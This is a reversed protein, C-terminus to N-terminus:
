FIMLVIGVWLWVGNCLFFCHLLAELTGWESAADGTAKSEVWVRLGQRM